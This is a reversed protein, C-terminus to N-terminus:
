TQHVKQTSFTKLDAEIDAAYHCTDCPLASDTFGVAALRGALKCADGRNITSRGRQDDVYVDLGEAVSSGENAIYHEIASPTKDDICWVANTDSLRVHNLRMTNLVCALPKKCGCYPQM